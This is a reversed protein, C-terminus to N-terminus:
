PGRTMRRNFGLVSSSPSPHTEPLQTRCGENQLRLAAGKHAAIEVILTADESERMTLKDFWSGRVGKQLRQSRM